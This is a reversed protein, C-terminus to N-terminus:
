AEVLYTGDDELKVLKQRYLAGIAKKFNKKSMEFTMKIDVPDSKDTFPMYGSNEKLYDLIKQSTPEIVNLYGQKELVIDLKNEEGINKVYGKLSQGYKLKKFIQNHFILGKYKQNVIVNVGLDTKNAIILDVEEGEELAMEENDLYKNIKNSGILRGTVRDERLYIIYAYGAQLEESHESYPVLLQKDLGWDVFAGVRNVDVVKLNAFGNLEILVKQTSATLREENDLYVFADIETGEEMDEPVFKNPLLVEEATEDILYWGNDTQRYAVLENYKGLEM